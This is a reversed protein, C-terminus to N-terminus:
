ALPLTAFPIDQMKAEKNPYAGIRSKKYLHEKTGKM